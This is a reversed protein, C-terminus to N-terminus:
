INKEQGCHRSGTLGGCRSAIIKDESNRRPFFLVTQSIRLFLQIIRTSLHDPSERLDRAMTPHM